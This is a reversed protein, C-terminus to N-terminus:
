LSKTEEVIRRVKESVKRVEHGSGFVSIEVSSPTSDLNIDANLETIAEVIEILQDSDEISFHLVKKTQSMKCSVKDIIM